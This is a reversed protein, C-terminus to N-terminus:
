PHKRTFVYKDITSLKKNFKYDMSDFGQLDQPNQPQNQSIWRAMAGRAKKAYFGRMVFESGKQEKFDIQLFDGALDDVKVAKSYEGSALNIVTKDKHDKLDKNIQTSIASGWFEYLNKGAPNELKTGMELRYAMIEDLPRLLGYFGSLMRINDQAYLVENQSMTDIDLGLYVDGRFAYGAPQSKSKLHPQKYEQFREYNLDSLKQSLKMMKGIEDSSKTKLIEALVKTEKKFRVSTTKVSPIDCEMDLTKAPSLLAIM